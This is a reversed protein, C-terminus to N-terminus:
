SGPYPRFVEPFYISPNRRFADLDLADEGRDFDGRRPKELGQFSKKWVRSVSIAVLFVFFCLLGDRRRAEL